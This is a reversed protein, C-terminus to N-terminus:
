VERGVEQTSPNCNDIEIGLITPVRTLLALISLRTM